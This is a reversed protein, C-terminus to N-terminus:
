TVDMLPSMYAFGGGLDIRIHPLYVYSPSGEYMDSSSSGFPPRYEISVGTIDLLPADDGFRDGWYENHLEVYSDVVTELDELDDEGLTDTRVLDTWAYEFRIVKGLYADVEIIIHNSRAGSSAIDFGGQKRHFHIYFTTICSDGAMNSVNDHGVDMIAGDPVGTHNEMYGTAIAIAEEKTINSQWLPTYPSGFHVSIAGNVLVSIDVPGGHFVHARVYDKYFYYSDNSVDYSYGALYDIAEQRTKLSPPHLTYVPLDEYEVLDLPGYEENVLGVECGIMYRPGLGPGYYDRPEGTYYEREEGGDADNPSGYQLYDATAVVMLLAAFIVMARRPGMDGKTRSAKEQIENAM